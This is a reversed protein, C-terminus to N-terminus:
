VDLAVPGVGIPRGDTSSMTLTSAAARDVVPEGSVSIVVKGAPHGDAVHRLAAATEELPFTADIVPRLVSADVLEALVALDAADPNSVYRRMTQRSFPSLLIPRILRVLGRLGGASRGSNLVLTGNPALARRVDGLRRNEINDIILDYAAGSAAFDERSYDIVHDAGISRLLEVNRPGVVATVEAGM